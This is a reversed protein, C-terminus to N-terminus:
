SRAPGGPACGRAQIVAEVQAGRNLLLQTIMVNGTEAALALPTWGAQM